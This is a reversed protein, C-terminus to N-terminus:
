NSQYFNFQYNHQKYSIFNLPVRPQAGSDEALVALHLVVLENHERRLLFLLVISNVRLNLLIVQRPSHSFIEFLEAKHLIM